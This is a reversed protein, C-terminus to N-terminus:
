RNSDRKADEMAILAKEVLDEGKFDIMIMQKTWTIEYNEDKVIGKEQKHANEKMHMFLLEIMKFEDWNLVIRMTDEKELAVM